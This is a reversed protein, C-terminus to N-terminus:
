PMQTCCQILYVSFLNWSDRKYHLLLFFTERPFEFNLTAGEKKVFINKQSYVTLFWNSKVYYLYILLNYTWDVIFPFNKKRIITQLFSSSFDQLLTSM